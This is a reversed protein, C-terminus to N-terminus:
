FTHPTIDSFIGPTPVGLYGNFEGWAGLRGDRYLDSGYLNASLGKLSLALAQLSSVGHVDLAAEIAGSIEFRCVWTSTDRQEPRFLRVAVKETSNAVDLFQEAIVTM